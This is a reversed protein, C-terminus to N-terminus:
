ARRARHHPRPGHAPRQRLHQDRGVKLIAAHPVKRGVNAPNVGPGDKLEYDPYDTERVEVRGTGEYSVGRNGPM